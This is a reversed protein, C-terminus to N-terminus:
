PCSPQTEWPVIGELDCKLEFLWATNDFAEARRKVELPADASCETSAM